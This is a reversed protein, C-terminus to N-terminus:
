CNNPSKLRHGSPRYHGADPNNRKWKRKREAAMEEQLREQEYRLHRKVSARGSARERYGRSQRRRALTQETRMRISRAISQAFSSVMAEALRKPPARGGDPIALTVSVVIVGSGDKMIEEVSFRLEGDFHGGTLTHYAVACDAEEADDDDDDGTEYSIRFPQVGYRGFNGLLKMAMVAGEVEVDDDDDNGDLPLSRFKLSPSSDDGRVFESFKREEIISRTSQRMCEAEELRLLEGEDDGDDDHVFGGEDEDDGITTRATTILRFGDVGSRRTQVTVEGGEPRTNAGDDDIDLYRTMGVGRRIIGIIAVVVVIVDAEEERGGVDTRAPQEEM